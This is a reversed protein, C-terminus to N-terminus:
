LQRVAEPDHGHGPGIVSPTPGFGLDAAPTEIESNVKQVAPVLQEYGLGALYGDILRQYNSIVGETEESLRMFEFGKTHLGQQQRPTNTFDQTPIPPIRPDDCEWVDPTPLPPPEEGEPYLTLSWIEFLCEEPGLPRIRYSAANGFVPLLFYNPFGFFVPHAAPFALGKALLDNLDAIDRGTQENWDVIANNLTGIFTKAALDPPAPLELDRLTEAVALDKEHVMGAMGVSTTRLFGITNDIFAKSDVAAVAPPDRFTTGVVPKYTANKATLGERLLQPHTALVHYGELFAEVSVKWNAPVRIAVWWEARMKDVHHQDLISAFPELSERLPPADDDFNIFASGGWLEVRCRRLAVDDPVIDKANFLEPAHIHTNAGDLGYCWAHFSCVFGNDVHGRDDALRTGRHRCANHFAKVSGDHDRLVIVSQDFIDYVVFDGPTPIEELRCAMQWVKPWLQERELEYFNPDHYRATPIRAADTVAFPVPLTKRDDTTTV